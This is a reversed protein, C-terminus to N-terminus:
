ESGSELRFKRTEDTAFDFRVTNKISRTYLSDFTRDSNTYISDYFGSLPEDDTYTRRNGDLIFIHSFTGSLRFPKPDGTATSDNTAAQKAGVTYRQVLLLNRNKLYSKAKNLGGLNVAVNRTELEELQTQDEIGGNESTTLNNLGAAFYVRYKSATHVTFLLTKIM